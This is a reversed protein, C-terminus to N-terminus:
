VTPGREEGHNGVSHLIEEAEILAHSACDVEAGAAGLRRREISALTHHMRALVRERANGIQEVDRLQQAIEAQAQEFQTRAVPDTAALIRRDLDALRATLVDTPPSTAVRRELDQWRRAVDVLRAVEARVAERVVPDDGARESASVAARARTLLEDVEGTQRRLVTVHRAVAGFLAAAGFSAGALGAALWSPGPDAAVVSGLAHRALLLAGAGAVVAVWRRPGQLGRAAVMGLVVAFVAVGIAPSMHGRLAYTMAFAAASAGLVVLALDAPRRRIELPAAGRVAAGAVIALPLPAALGGLSPELLTLVHAALGALAGAVTMHIATRHFRRHEAFDLEPVAAAATTNM